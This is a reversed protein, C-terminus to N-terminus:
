PTTDDEEDVIDNILSIIEDESLDTYERRFAERAPQAAKKIADWMEVRDLEARLMRAIRANNLVGQARARSVLEEPLKLTIDIESM